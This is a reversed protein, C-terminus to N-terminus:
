LLLFPKVHFRPPCFMYISRVGTAKANALQEKVAVVPDVKPVHEEEYKRRGDVLDNLKKARAKERRKANKIASSM